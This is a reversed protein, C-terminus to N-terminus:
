VTSDDTACVKEPLIRNGNRANREDFRECDEEFLRLKKLLTPMFLRLSLMGVLTIGIYMLSKFSTLLDLIM